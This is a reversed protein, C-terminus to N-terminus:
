HEADAAPFARVPADSRAAERLASLRPCHTTRTERAAEDLLNLQGSPDSTRFLTLLYIGDSNTVHGMLYESRKREADLVDEADIDALRDVDCILHVAEPYSQAEHPPARPPTEVACGLVFGM